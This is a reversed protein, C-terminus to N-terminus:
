FKINFFTLLKMDLKYCIFTILDFFSDIVTCMEPPCNLQLSHLAASGVGEHTPRPEGPDGRRPTNNTDVKRDVRHEEGEEVRALINEGEEV